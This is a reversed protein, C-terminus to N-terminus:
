LLKDTLFEELLKVYESPHMLSLEGHRMGKAVYLQSGRAAENLKRASSRMARIEREGVVVLVKAEVGCFSPKLAYNGNSVAINQLTERSFRLSDQYYREFLGDPLGLAQAQARAFWRQRILGYSLKYVPAMAATLAKMPLVLASELVAYEAIDPRASLAEVAIQAGLSLGALLLVKGGCRSDVYAMLKEASDEISRFAEAGDEGHGDIVPAVVRYAGSLRGIAEELSWWSLGGGHLLVIVPRGPKGFEKFLM